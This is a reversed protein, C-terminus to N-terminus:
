NFILRSPINEMTAIDVVDQLFQKKVVEFDKITVKQKTSGKRKTFNMRSLLSKAWTNTLKVHGGNEALRTSDLALLIGEAAAQVVLAAVATGREHLNRIYQQVAM